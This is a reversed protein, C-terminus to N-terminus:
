KRNREERSWRGWHVIKRSAHKIYYEHDQTLDKPDLYWDLHRAAYPALVRAGNKFRWWDQGARRMGFTTDIKAFILKIIKDKYRIGYIGKRPPNHQMEWPIVNEKKPYHDPIDDIRLMPGAVIIQPLKELLHAYVDLVDGDVNDLEIDPDTVVYNSKPHTKFYDKVIERISNLAGKHIIKKNWYIKIKKNELQKLYEVTPEYSSGFDIIVIEFPTKICNYYSQISKKLVELRDCAIIFIPIM